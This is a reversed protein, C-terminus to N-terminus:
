TLQCNRTSSFNYPPGATAAMPAVRADVLKLLRSAFVAQPHRALIRLM